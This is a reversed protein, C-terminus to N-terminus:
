LEMITQEYKRESKIVKISEDILDVIKSKDYHSIDEWKQVGLITFLRSKVQEYEKNVRLIGLRKKIYESYQYKTACNIKYYSKCDELTQHLNSIITNLDTNATELATTKINKLTKECNIFYQRAQKGKETRQIMSLEKAMDVTIEYDIYTTIPNKPNNTARKQAILRFDSNEEFGYSIMREFWTDFRTGIELFEHLERASVTNNENIKILEINEM